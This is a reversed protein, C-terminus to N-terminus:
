QYSFPPFDPSEENITDDSSRTYLGKRQFHQTDETGRSAQNEFLSLSSGFVSGLSQRGPPGQWTHQAGHICHKM